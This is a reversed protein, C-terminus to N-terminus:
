KQPSLSQILEEIEEPSLQHSTRELMQRFHRIEEVSVPMGVNGLPGESTV